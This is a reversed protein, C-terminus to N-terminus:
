KRKDWQLSNNRQNSLQSKFDATSTTPNARVNTTASFAPM